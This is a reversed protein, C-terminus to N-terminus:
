EEFGMSMVAGTMLVRFIPCGLGSAWSGLLPVGSFHALCEGNGFEGPHDVANEAAVGRNLDRTHIREFQRSRVLSGEEGVHFVALLQVKGFRSGHQNRFVPLKGRLLILDQNVALIRVLGKRFDTRDKRRFGLLELGAHMRGRHDVRGRFEGFADIDTRGGHDLLARHDPLVRHDSRADIETLEDLDAFVGHDIRVHAHHAEALEPAAEDDMGASHDSGVTESKRGSEGTQDLNRLIPDDLDVVVDLDSRVARDVSGTEALRPDLLADLDVVQHM